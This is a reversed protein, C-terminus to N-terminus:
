EEQEEVPLAFAVVADGLRTGMLSHGGAAIVVFQRGDGRVRYTLPTAQGGAPLRGKWLEEGTKTDFARLYDDMTAAIFALGSATTIPGGQNPVGYGIGIPLPALDETTGLPVEWRITGTAIDVGVLTGWPPPSCPFGWPSLLFSRTMAFPTGLQPEWAPPPEGTESVRAMTADYEARPILRLETAVRSTNTVLIGRGPDIAVSGWNTGGFYGPFQIWGRVSPPTFIGESDLSAIKERCRGRDWPTLGWADEPGFRHPHLPPPRLPFPQTPSLTEGEAGGGPVAREEVPFIPEGSDRHLFFLLGMKTAQVLAPVPGAPGPFDFLAPQAPVDYDWVDHHVTQFSWVVKGTGADLAVVSSSYHDLEGRVGGWYDPATNGTPVYVLELEPDVALISWANATGRRYLLPAGAPDRSEIFDQGPPIPDWAWRLAGSRADYARVVGGPADVRINDLVVTGTVVLDGIIAPPSTVGYEGPLRDGIGASLDVSGSRGFDSCPRGTEADLAILRADLTGLFIRERCASGEPARPDRWHSVGRCTVIYMGNTDVHPDYVWREAGSEADLAIVKDRPSCVYLTDGVVIPTNQFATGRLTEAGDDVDGTHYTWAVELDGVNQPTIQDLPSYRSGAKDGGYEPWDAVPGSYDLETGAPRGALLFLSCAVLAIACVAAAVAGPSLSLARRLQEEPM